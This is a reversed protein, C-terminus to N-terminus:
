GSGRLRSMFASGPSDSGFRASAASLMSRLTNVRRPTMVMTHIMRRTTAPRRSKNKPVLRASRTTHGAASRGGTPRRRRGNPGCGAVIIRDDLREIATDYGFTEIVQRNTELHETVRSMTVRGGALALPVQLQDALHRDLVARGAHFREFAAVAESAVDESRKGREGLTSVGARSGDDVAAVTV